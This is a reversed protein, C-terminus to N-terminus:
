RVGGQQPGDTASGPDEGRIRRLQENFPRALHEPIDTSVGLSKALCEYRDLLLMSHLLSFMAPARGDQESVLQELMVVREDPALPMGAVVALLDVAGVGPVGQRTIWRHAALLVRGALPNACLEDITTAQKSANM